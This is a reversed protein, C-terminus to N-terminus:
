TVRIIEGVSTEAVRMSSVPWSSVTTSNSAYTLPVELLPSRSQTRPPRSPWAEHKTKKQKKMKANNHKGKKKKKRKEKEKKWGQKSINERARLSRVVCANKSLPVLTETNDNDLRSCLSENSTDALANSLATESSLEALTHTIWRAHRLPTIKHMTCRQFM